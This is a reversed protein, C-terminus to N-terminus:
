ERDRKHTRRLIKGPFPEVQFFIDGHRVRWSLVEDVADFTPQKQLDFYRPLDSVCINYFQRIVDHKGLINPVSSSRPLVSRPCFVLGTIRMHHHVYEAREHVFDKDTFVWVNIM